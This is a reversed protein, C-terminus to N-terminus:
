RQSNLERADREYAALRGVARRRQEPTTSNHLTAFSACSERVLRESYGRYAPNPSLNLRALYARLQALAEAQTPRAPGAAGALQGSVFRLTQMLDQQRRQREAQNLAIDSQSGELASRLATVQREELKGYFEEAREISSKLRRDFREAATAQLWEKRWQENGKELKAEIHKIQEPRLSMALWVAAPEAQRTLADFRERTEDFLNCVQPAALEAGALRQMKQLLEAIKPLEEARHWALVRTLEDRVKPTQESQIDIYGDLWWYGFEPSNNYALKIASCAQLLLLATAAFLWGIIRKSSSFSPSM